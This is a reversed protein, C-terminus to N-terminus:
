ERQSASPAKWTVKVRWSSPERGCTEFGLGAAKELFRPMMGELLEAFQVPTGPTWAESTGRSSYFWWSAPADGWSEVLYTGDKVTYSPFNHVERTLVEFSVVAQCQMNSAARLCRQKFLEIAEDLLKEMHAVWKAALAERERIQEGRERMRVSCVEAFSECENEARSNTGPPKWTVRVKWSGQDRGTSVFGLNGVKELFKPMMGELLEAFQVPVGPTWVEQTGKHAYYWWSPEADGWSDMLYTGNTATYTPFNPIQRTLVEFSVVAHSQQNAAAKLARQKFLEVAADLLKSEYRVWKAAVLDRDKSEQRKSAVRM